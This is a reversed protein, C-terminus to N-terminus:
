KTLLMRQTRTIAGAKLVAYYVGSPLDGGKFIKDYRGAGQYGNVLVAVVQGSINVVILKVQTGESLTYGITTSPNFPNPYNPALTIGEPIAANEEGEAKSNDPSGPKAPGSTTANVEKSYASVNTSSYARIRYFYQTGAALGINSYLSVNAGVTVIEAYTGAAGTKREIKFGSENTTQDTWAIDIQSSSITIAVANTPAKLLSTASAENSYASNGAANYARVRYFYKTNASLGSLNAYSTVNPGVTAIQAYTGLAGQKREIKFGEENSSKDKWALDIQTNSVATASLSDPTAPQDSFTTANAQNSYASVNTTSFARVRYFYQTGNALGTNSYNTVNVGVTAIEAYNGGFGTKREIKFGIENATQDTWALDIQSSSVPTATLNTPAKLLTTASAENSYASNGAANYARVRYFYKANVSLGSFNAYNKVNPGVTAIEAYTGLAGQKREIKFGDENSSKDKWALNIQTNSVATASLSDPTAPQGSFTTANAENSYVSVNMASTARVRYYYQTSVTLGNDSFSTANAGATGVQAYSGAAGTKREISFGTESATQDSWALNIQSNGVATAVLNAPAKMLTIASDENSYASFGADRHARVRYFYVLNGLLGTNSYSTVNAGVTAIETFSTEGTKKREIKFDTENNSNDTWSLNIQTNSVASAVFGTPAPLAPQTTANAESSYNSSGTVNVSRVRYYYQTGGGLGNDSYVTTPANVSDIQAYTGGPGTKREIRFRATPNNTGSADTWSLNIQSASTANALLGTPTAPLDPNTTASAQNSFGSHSNNKKAWVVYYYTSNGTLGLNSYTTTNVDVSDIRAYPGGNVTGRFIVFAIENNSNDVWILNIQSNSATTATLNSPAAQAYLRSTFFLCILPSLRAWGACWLVLRGCWALASNSSYRM